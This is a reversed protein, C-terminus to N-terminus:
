HKNRLVTEEKLIKVKLDGQLNEIEVDKLKQIQFRVKEAGKYDKV